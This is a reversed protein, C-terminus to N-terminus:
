VCNLQLSSELSVLVKLRQLIIQVLSASCQRGGDVRPHDTACLLKGDAGNTGGAISLDFIDGTVTEVTRNVAMALGKPMKAMIGYQDDEMMERTVKFGKAYKKHVYTTDYGQLPDEYTVPAGETTEVLQGFGTVSSDYEQQKSSGLVHFIKDYVTPLQAFQDFFIERFGPELLDM